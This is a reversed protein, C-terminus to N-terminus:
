LHESNADKLLNSAVKYILYMGDTGLASELDGDKILKILRDKLEPRGRGSTFTKLRDDLIYVTAYKIIKSPLIHRDRELFLSLTMGTFYVLKYEDVGDRPKVGYANMYRYINGAIAEVIQLDNVKVTEFFSSIVSDCGDVTASDKGVYLSYYEPLGTSFATFVKKIDSKHFHYVFNHM